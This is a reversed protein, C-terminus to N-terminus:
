MVCDLMCVRVVTSRISSIDPPPVATHPDTSVESALNPPTVGKGPIPHTDPPAGTADQHQFQIDQNCQLLFSTLQQPPLNNSSTCVRKRRGLLGASDRNVRSQMDSILSKKKPRGGGNVASFGRKCLCHHLFSV